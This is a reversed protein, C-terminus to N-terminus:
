RGDESDVTPLRGAVLDVGLGPRDTLRLVGDALVFGGQAPDTALDFSGDLDLYRTAPSAFAAHLAAAISIVSEDNCGWMLELGASEAIRAIALAPTVGGCKMLKINFIGCAAPPTALALADREDCLSEDAAILRRQVEPMSRLEAFAGTAVPQEILELDLSATAALLKRTEERTYGRNADVRIKIPAGYRSRLQRLRELDEELSLGIKVKLCRFGQALYESAEAVAEATDKIGVTISTPLGDHCRGLLDVLPVQLHRAFLDHLAMDVAARAAPTEAMREGANRCMAGLHRVDRGALWSLSDEALAAKCAEESEGTVEEAPSASGLGTSGDTGVLQLFFLRVATITRSAITYPRTLEVAESWSRIASIRV